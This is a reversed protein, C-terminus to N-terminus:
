STVNIFGGPNITITAPSGIQIDATTLSANNGGVTLSANGEDDGDGVYIASAIVSAGNTIALSGQSFVTQSGAYKGSGLDIQQSQIMSGPGDVLVAGCGGGLGIELYTIHSNTSGNIVALTGHAPNVVSGTDQVGYGLYLVSTTQLNSGVGDVTVVGSGGWGGAYIEAPCSVSGGNTIAIAGPGLPVPGYGLIIIGQPEQINFSSGVGDVLIRATGTLAQSKITVNGGGTVNLNGYSTSSGIWATNSSILSSGAGSVNAYGSGYSGILYNNCKASGGGTVALTGISGLFTTVNNNDLQFADSGIYLEGSTQLLSAPGDVSAYGVGGETGIRIDNTGTVKGGNSVSLVGDGPYYIGGFNDRGAGILILGTNPTAALSTTAGSVAIAGKGGNLGIIISGERQLGDTGPLIANVGGNITLTPRAAPALTSTIALSHPYPQSFIAPNGYYNVGISTLLPTFTGGAVIINGDTFDFKRAASMDFGNTFTATGGSQTYSGNGGITLSGATLSGSQLTYGSYNAVAPFEISIQLAGAVTHIGGSQFFTGVSLGRGLIETGAVALTSSGSLNYFGSTGQSYGLYLNASVTNIGGTQNFSGITPFQYFVSNQYGLYESGTTTLIGSGSLNYIGIGNTSCGLYLGPNNLFTPSGVNHVGASQNFTGYTSVGINEYIASVTGSGSLAYVGVGVEGVTLHTSNQYGGSQSFVSPGQMGVHISGTSLTGTGSLNYVGTASSEYGLYLVNSPANLGGTQNFTGSGELGVYEAQTIALTGGSLLLSGGQGINLGLYVDSASAIGSSIQATGANNIQAVVSSSPVGLTWNSPDAWIGTASKWITDAFAPSAAVLASLRLANVLTRRASNPRAIPM